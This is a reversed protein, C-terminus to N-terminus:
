MSTIRDDDEKLERAWIDVGVLLTGVHRGGGTVGVGSAGVASETAGDPATTRLTDCPVGETWLHGVAGGLAALLVLFQGTRLRWVTSRLARTAAIVAASGTTQRLLFFSFTGSYSSRWSNTRFHQECKRALADRVRVTRSVELATCDEAAFVLTGRRLVFLLTLRFIRCFMAIESIIYLGTFIKKLRSFLM